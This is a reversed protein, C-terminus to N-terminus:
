KSNILPKSPSAEKVTETSERPERFETQTSLVNSEQKYGTLVFSGVPAALIVFLFMLLWSNTLVKILQKM